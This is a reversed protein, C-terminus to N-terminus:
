VEKFQDFVERFAAMRPDLETQDCSCTEDNLNAGCKKCIGKCNDSCLVKMPWRVLIEHYILDDIDLVTGALYGASEDESEPEELPCKRDIVLRIAVPVEKLCRDCPVSLEIKTEGSIWLRKNEQNELHLTFPEKKTVPFRGLKSQFYVLDTCVQREEALNEISLLDAIDIKM